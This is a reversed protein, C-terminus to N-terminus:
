GLGARHSAIEGECLAVAFSAYYRYEVYRTARWRGAGLGKGGGGAPRRSSAERRITDAWIVQGGLRARGYVRPMPAGETSATVICIAAAAARRRQKGGSAGFLRM